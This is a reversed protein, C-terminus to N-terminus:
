PGTEAVVDRDDLSRAPRLCADLLIAGVVASVSQGRNVATVRISRAISPPVLAVLRETTPVRARRGARDEASTM